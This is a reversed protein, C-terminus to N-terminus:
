GMLPFTLVTRQYVSIERQDKSTKGPNQQRNKLWRLDARM